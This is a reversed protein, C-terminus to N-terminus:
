LTGFLNSLIAYTPLQVHSPSTLPNSCRSTLPCTATAKSGQAFDRSGSLRWGNSDLATGLAEIPGPHEKPTQYPEPFSSSLFPSLSSVPGSRFPHRPALASTSTLLPTLICNYAFLSLSPAFSLPASLTSPAPLRLLFISSSPSPFLPRPRDM